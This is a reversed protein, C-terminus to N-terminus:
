AVFSDFTYENTLRSTIDDLSLDPDREAARNWEDLFLAAEDDQLWVTGGQGNAIEVAWGQGYTTITFVAGKYIVSSKM